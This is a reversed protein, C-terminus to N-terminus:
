ESEQNLVHDLAKLLGLAAKGDFWTERAIHFLEALIADANDDSYDFLPDHGPLELTQSDKRIKWGGIRTLNRSM